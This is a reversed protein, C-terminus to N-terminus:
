GSGRAIFISGAVVRAIGAVDPVLLPMAVALMGADAVALAAQAPRDAEDLACNIARTALEARAYGDDGSACAAELEAQANVLLSYDRLRSVDLIRHAAAHASDFSRNRGTSWNEAWLLWEPDDYIERAAEIAAVILEENAATM